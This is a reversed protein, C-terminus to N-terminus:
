PALARVLDALSAVATAAALAEVVKHVEVKLTRGRNDFVVGQVADVRM